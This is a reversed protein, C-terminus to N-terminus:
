ALVELFYKDIITDNPFLKKIIDKCLQVSRHSILFEILRSFNRDQVNKKSLEYFEEAMREYDLFNKIEMGSIELSYAVIFSIKPYGQYENIAFEIKDVWKKQYFEWDQSVQQSIFDGECYLYWSYAIQASFNEESFPVEKELYKILQKFDGRREM